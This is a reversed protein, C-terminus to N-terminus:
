NQRDTFLCFYGELDITRVKIEGRLKVLFDVPAMHMLPPPLLHSTFHLLQELSLNRALTETGSGLSSSCYDLILLLLWEPGALLAFYM